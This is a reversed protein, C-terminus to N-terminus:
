LPPASTLGLAVTGGFTFYPPSTDRSSRSACRGWLPQLMTSTNLCVTGLELSKPSDVKGRSM